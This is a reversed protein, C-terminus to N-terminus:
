GVGGLKRLRLVVPHAQGLARGADDALTRLDALLTAERAGCRSCVPGPRHGLVHCINRPRM